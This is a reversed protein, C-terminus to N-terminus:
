LQQLDNSVSSKPLPEFSSHQFNSPLGTSASWQRDLTVVSCMIISTETREAESDLVHRSVDGNHFGLEMLVRGAIGCM